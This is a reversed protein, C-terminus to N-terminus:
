FGLDHPYPDSRDLGAPPAPPPGYPDSRDLPAAPGPRLPPYPSPPRSEASAPWPQVTEQIAYPSAAPPGAGRAHIPRPARCRVLFTGVAARTPIMDYGAPCHRGAIQYCRGETTGCSVHLMPSGDPGTIPFVAPESRSRDTCASAACALLVLVALKGM